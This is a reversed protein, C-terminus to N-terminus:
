SHASLACDLRLNNCIERDLATTFHETFSYITFYEM